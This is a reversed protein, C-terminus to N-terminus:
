ELEKFITSICVVRDQIYAIKTGDPSWCPGKARSILLEPIWDKPSIVYIDDNNEVAIHSGFDPNYVSWTPNKYDGIIDYKHNLKGNELEFVKIGYFFCCLLFKCDPSVCPQSLPENIDVSLNVLEGTQINLIYVDNGDDYFIKDGDTSIEPNFIKKNKFKTLQVMTKEPYSIKWLNGQRLFLISKGNDVWLPSTDGNKTDWDTIDHITSDTLSVVRIVSYYKIQAALISEGNPFFSPYRRNEIIKEIKGDTISIAYVVNGDSTVLDIALQSKDPSLVQQICRGNLSIIKERNKSTLDYLYILTSDSGFKCQYVLKSMDRDIINPHLTVKSLYTLRTLQKSYIDINWVNGNYTLLIKQGDPYFESGCYSRRDDPSIQRLKDGNVTITWIQYAYDQYVNFGIVYSDPSWFIGYISSGVSTLQRATSDIISAIFLQNTYWPSFAFKNGDPSLTIYGCGGKYQFITSESGDVLSIKKIHTGLKERTTVLCDGNPSWSLNTDSDMDGAWRVEIKETSISYLNESQIKLECSCLICYILIIIARARLM